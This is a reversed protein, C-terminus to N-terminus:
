ELLELRTRSMLDAPQPTPRRDMVIGARALHVYSDAATARILCKDREPFSGRVQEEVARRKIGVFRYIFRGLGGGLRAAGDDSLFASVAIVARLLLYELRHVLRSAAVSSM